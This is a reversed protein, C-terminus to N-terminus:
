RIGILLSKQLFVSARFSAADVVAEADAVGDIGGEAEELKTLEFLREKLSKKLIQARHSSCAEPRM